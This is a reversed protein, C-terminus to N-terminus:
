GFPSFWVIATVAHALALTVSIGAFIMHWVFVQKGGLVMSLGFLVTIVLTIILALGMIFLIEHREKTKVKLLGEEDAHTDNFAQMAGLDRQMSTSGQQASGNPAALSPQSILLLMPLLTLLFLLRTKM